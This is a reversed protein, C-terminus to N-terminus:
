RVVFSAPVVEITLALQSGDEATVTLSHVGTVVPTGTVYYGDGSIRLAAPLKPSVSQIRKRTATGLAIQCPRGAVVRFYLEGVTTVGSPIARIVPPVRTVVTAVASCSPTGTQFGLPNSPWPIVKATGSSNRLGTCKWEDFCYARAVTHKQREAEIYAVLTSQVPDYVYTGTPPVQIYGSSNDAFSSVITTKLRLSEASLYAQLSTSGTHYCMAISEASRILSDGSHYLSLSFARGNGGSKNWRELSLFELISPIRRPVIVEAEGNVADCIPM